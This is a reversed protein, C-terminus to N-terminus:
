DSAQQTAKMIHVSPFIAAEYKAPFNTCLRSKFSFSVQQNIRGAVTRKSHVLRISCQGEKREGKKSSIDKETQTGSPGYSATCVRSENLKKRPKISYQYWVRQRQKEIKEKKTSSSSRGEGAERCTRISRADPISTM